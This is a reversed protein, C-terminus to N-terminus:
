AVNHVSVLNFLSVIIASQEALFDYFPGGPNDFSCPIYEAKGTFFLNLPCQEVERFLDKFRQSDFLHGLLLHSVTLPENWYLGTMVTSAHLVAAEKIIVVFFSWLKTAAEQGGKLAKSITPKRSIRGSELDKVVARNGHLLWLKYIEYVTPSNGM